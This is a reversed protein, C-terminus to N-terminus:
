NDHSRSLIQLIYLFLNLIDLYLNIAALIYEDPSLKTMILSSDYLIFGTFLLAGGISVIFAFSKSYHGTVGMILNIVSAGIIAMLGAFLFGGLFSFDKKSVFCYATIGLFISMTIVFAELVLYGIGEEAYRACVLGIMHSEFLTFGALLYMNTPHVDKLCMLAVLTGLTGVFGLVLLPAEAALVFHRLPAVLMYCASIFTTLILQLSLISYVKRLFGLRVAASCTAVSTGYSFDDGGEFETRLAATEATVGKEAEMPGLGPKQAHTTM